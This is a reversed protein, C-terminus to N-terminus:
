SNGGTSECLTALRGQAITRWEEVSIPGGDVSKAWLRAGDAWSDRRWMGKPARGAKNTPCGAELWATHKQPSTERFRGEILAALEVAEPENSFLSIIEEDQMFPCFKCSSKHVEGWGCFALWAICRDRTLDLERLPYDFSQASNTKQTFRKCRTSENAEIGVAWCIAAEPFQQKAWAQMVEGKFKLSCVHSGGPLLPVAGLRLVWETITERRGTGEVEGKRVTVLQKGIGEALVELRTLNEYTQSFEAGPDAFVWAKCPPFAVDLGSRSIALFESALNRNADILALATSDVGGGLALLHTKTM